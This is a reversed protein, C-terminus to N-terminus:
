FLIASHTNHTSSSGLVHDVDYARKEAWVEGRGFLTDDISGSEREKTRHTHARVRDAAM